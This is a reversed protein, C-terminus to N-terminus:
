SFLLLSELQRSVKRIFSLNFKFLTIYLVSHIVVDKALYTGGVEYASIQQGNPIFM